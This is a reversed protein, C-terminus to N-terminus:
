TRSEGAPNPRLRDYRERFEARARKIRMKVASLGIGLTEAIEQYPLEDMDCMILPIRLTDNMSDLVREIRARKHDHEINRTAEPAVHMTEPLKGETEDLEVFSRKEAKKLHNLCHNVKIRQLWTKFKSRREFRPLAFYVKMFVDQALDESDASSRTIYRCNAVVGRTHRKVLAEFARTDGEPAALVQEVLMRDEDRDQTDDM